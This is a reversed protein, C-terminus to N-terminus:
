TKLTRETVREGGYSIITELGLKRDVCVYRNSVNTLVNRVGVIHHGINVVVNRTSAVDNGASVANNGAGMGDNGVSM